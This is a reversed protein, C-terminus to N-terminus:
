PRREDRLAGHDNVNKFPMNEPFLAQVGSGTSSIWSEVGM